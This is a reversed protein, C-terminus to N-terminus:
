ISHQKQTSSNITEINFITKFKTIHTFTISENNSSSLSQHITDITENFDNEDIFASKMQQIYKKLIDKSYIIANTTSDNTPKYNKILYTLHQNITLRFSSEKYDNVIQSMILEFNPNVFITKFTSLTKNEFLTTLDFVSAIPLVPLFFIKFRNTHSTILEVLSNVIQSTIEDTKVYDNPLKKHIDIIIKMLDSSLDYINYKKIDDILPNIFSYIITNNTDNNTDIAGGDITNMGHKGLSLNEFYDEM